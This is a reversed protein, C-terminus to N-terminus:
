QGYYIVITSGVVANGYSRVDLPAIGSTMMYNAVDEHPGELIKWQSGTTTITFGM